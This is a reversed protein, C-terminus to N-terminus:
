LVADRDRQTHVPIGGSAVVDELLEAHSRFDIFLLERARDGFVLQIGIIVSFGASARARLSLIPFRDGPRFASM